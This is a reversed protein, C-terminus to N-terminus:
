ETMQDALDALDPPIAHGNSLIWRTAEERTLLSVEPELDPYDFTRVVYYRGLSSRYLTLHEDYEGSSLGIVGAGDFMQAEEWRGTAKDTDLTIGGEILFRM